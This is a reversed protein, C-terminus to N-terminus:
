TQAGRGAAMEERSRMVKAMFGQFRGWAMKEYEGMVEPERALRDDMLYFLKVSRVIRKEASHGEDAPVEREITKVVKVDMEIEDAPGHKLYMRMWSPAVTSEAHASVDSWDFNWRLQEVQPLTGYRGVSRKRTHHGFRGATKEDTETFLLLPNVGNIGYKAGDRPAQKFFLTRQLTISTDIVAKFHRCVRQGYTLLTKTDVEALIKELIEPTSFAQAVVPAM